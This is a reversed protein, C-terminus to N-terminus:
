SLRKIWEEVDKTSTVSSIMELPNEIGAVSIPSSKAKGTRYEYQEGYRFRRYATYMLALGGGFAVLALWIPSDKSDSLGYIILATVDISLFAGTAMGLVLVAARYLTNGPAKGYLIKGSYGDVVVQFARGRYLYRLVWLPYYVLGQQRRFSRVFLQSLRDLGARRNIQQQFENEAAQRADSFSNVPEFVMGSNHLTEPNFPQLEQDTLLLNNVGFEGVDCAAGTWTMEQVLRVERPEYHRNNGSGVKKEGFAWGAIRGWITWFPLYVLFAESLQSQSGARRAIAMNSSFFRQLAEIAQERLVRVPAQYRRLGREGKVFSRQECFPCRVVSQGEPISVMGGCKPCSLGQVSEPESM